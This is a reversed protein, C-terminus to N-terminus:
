VPLRGRGGGRQGGSGPSSLGSRHVGVTTAAPSAGAAPSTWRFRPPRVRRSPGTSPSSPWAVAKMRAERRESAGELAAVMAVMQFPPKLPVEMLIGGNSVTAILLKGFNINLCINKFITFFIYFLFINSMPFHGRRGTEVIARRAKRGAQVTAKEQAPCNRRDLVM